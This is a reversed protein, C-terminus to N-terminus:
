TIDASIIPQLYMYLLGFVIALGFSVLTGILIYETLKRDKANSLDGFRFVSKAALLFGIIQWQTTVICSFIILREFIGIYKGAKALSQSSSDEDLNWQNMVLKILVSSVFTVCLLALGLLLMGDSYIFGVDIKYPHYISVVACLVLIHALQDLGFLWRSNVKKDLNLKILDIVYHSILTVLIAFWYHLNFKFIVLLAVTHVLIHLYLYGSKHKKLRKDEVWKNPQFVFDGIVHAMLLQLILTIM